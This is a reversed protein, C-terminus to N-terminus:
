YRRGRFGDHFDWVAKMIKDGNFAILAVILAAAAFVFWYRKKM